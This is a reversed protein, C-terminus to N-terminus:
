RTEVARVTELRLGPQPASVLLAHWGLGDLRARLTGSGAVARTGTPRGDVFLGLWWRGPTRVRLELEGAGYLWLTAQLESMARGRWGECLVPADRPPEAVPPPSVPGEGPAFLTVAGGRAVPRYGAEVLGLWAFWAGPHEAHRYLGAHFLIRTVGLRELTARDGPLWAGCSLRNLTAAFRYPVAPALTSYGGPRERRSQLTYYDYVSGFHVGPAFLPLELQRAEPPATRLAAYATNAPDAAAPELPLAGLDLAVLALLAAGAAASWRGARAILRGAAVAALAALALVAVPLLRGPARPFRFPPLADWLTAYLPINTGLALLVPVVTAIGLFVALGRRGGRWLAVIGAAALLPTLWGLYVFDESSPRGWRDLFDGWEASFADVEDLSRGEPQSSGAILTYRILLGIGVSALAGALTWATTALRYRLAAYAGVLPLAGLALHLQGSLPITVLAAAALAGWGHAALPSRASRSRELALLALPLALAVWGLLHGGSQALRYPAIAFALGGLAAAAPPLALTRLWAYTLLGAGAITVLLLVNWAVIPGFAVELPWFALGFPWGGLM